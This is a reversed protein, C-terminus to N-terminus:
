GATCKPTHNPLPREFELLEIAGELQQLLWHFRAYLVLHWGPSPYAREAASGVHVRIGCQRIVSHFFEGLSISSTLPIALRALSTAHSVWSAVSSERNVPLPHTGIAITSLLFMKTSRISLVLVHWLAKLDFNLYERSSLSAQLNRCCIAVSRRSFRGDSSTVM